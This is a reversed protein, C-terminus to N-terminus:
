SEGRKVKPKGYKTEIHGTASFFASPTTATWTLTKDMKTHTLEAKKKGKNQHNKVTIIFHNATPQCCLLYTILTLM